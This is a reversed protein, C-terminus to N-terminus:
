CRSGCIRTYYLIHPPRVTKDQKKSLGLTRIKDMIQKLQLNLHGYDADPCVSLCVIIILVHLLCVSVIICSYISLFDTCLSCVFLCVGSFEQVMPVLRTELGEERSYSFLPLRPFSVVHWMSGPMNSLCVTM